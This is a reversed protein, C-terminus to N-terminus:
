RQRNHYTSALYINDREAQQLDGPDCIFLILSYKSHITRTPWLLLIIPIYGSSRARTRTTTTMRTLDELVIFRIGRTTMLTMMTKLDEKRVRQPQPKKQTRPCDQM